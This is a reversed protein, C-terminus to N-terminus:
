CPSFVGGTGTDPMSDLGVNRCAPVHVLRLVGALGALILILRRRNIGQPQQDPINATTM